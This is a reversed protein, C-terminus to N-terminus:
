RAYRCRRAQSVQECINWQAVGVAKQPNGSGNSRDCPQCSVLGDQWADFVPQHQRAESVFIGKGVLSATMPVGLDIPCDFVCEPVASVVKLYQIERGITIVFPLIARGTNIQRNSTKH